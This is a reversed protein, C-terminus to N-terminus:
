RANAFHNDSSKSVQLAVVGEYYLRTAIVFYIDAKVSVEDGLCQVLEELRVLEESRESRALSQVAASASSEQSTMLATRWAGDKCVM